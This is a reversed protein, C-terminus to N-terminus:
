GLYKGFEHDLAIIPQAALNEAGRLSDIWYEDYAITTSNLINYIWNKNKYTLRCHAIDLGDLSTGSMLGLVYYTEM